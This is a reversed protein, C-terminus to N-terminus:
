SVVEVTKWTMVAAVARRCSTCALFCYTVVSKLSALEQHAVDKCPLDQRYAYGTKLIGALRSVPHVYCGHLM